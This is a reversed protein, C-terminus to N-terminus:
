SYMKNHHEQLFTFVVSKYTYELTSCERKEPTNFSMVESNTTVCATITPETVKTSYGPLVNKPAIRDASPVKVPTTYM